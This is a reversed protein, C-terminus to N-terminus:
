SRRENKQIRSSLGPCNLREEYTLGRMKPMLRIFRRQVAELALRDKRLYPSWFQVCNELPLRVLIKYLQLMVERSKFETGIGKYFTRSMQQRGIQQSRNGSSHPSPLSSPSVNVTVKRREMRAEVQEKRKEREPMAEGDGEKERAKKQRYKIALTADNARCQRCYWQRIGKAMKETIQICDGHFWENCKDCGIMFCNIDPRRASVIFRLQSCGPIKWDWPDRGQREHGKWRGQQKEM